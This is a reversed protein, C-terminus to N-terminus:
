RDLPRERTSVSSASSARSTTSPPRTASTSRAPSRDTPSGTPLSAAASRDRTPHPRAPRAREHPAPRNHPIHASTAGSGRDRRGAARAPDVRSQASGRPAPAGCPPPQASWCRRPWGGAPMSAATRTAPSTRLPSRLPGRTTTLIAAARRVEAGCLAIDASVRLPAAGLPFASTLRNELRTLLDAPGLNAGADQRGARAALALETLARAGVAHLESTHQLCQREPAIALTKHPRDGRRAARGRALTCGRGQGRRGPRGVNSRRQALGDSGRGRPAPRGGRPRGARARLARTGRARQVRLVDARRARARSQDLEAAETTRGLGLACLAGRGM